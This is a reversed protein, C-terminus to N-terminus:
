KLFELGPVGDAEVVRRYRAVSIGSACGPSWAPAQAPLAILLGGSTQPDVVLWREAESFEGTFTLYDQAVQLNAATVLHRRGARDGPEGRVEAPGPLPDCGSRAAGPWESPTARCALRHHRHLRRTSSSCRRAPSRNLATM